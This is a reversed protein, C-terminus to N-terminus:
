GPLDDSACDRWAGLGRGSLLGGREEWFFLLLLLFWWLLGLDGLGGGLTELSAGEVWSLGAVVAGGAEVSASTGVVWCGGGPGRSWEEEEVVVVAVLVAALVAAPVGCVGPLLVAEATECARRLEPALGRVLSVSLSSAVRM